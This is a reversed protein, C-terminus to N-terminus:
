AVDGPSILELPSRQIEDALARLRVAEAGADTGSRAEEVEFELTASAVRREALDATAALVWAGGAARRECRIRLQDGPRVFHRFSARGLRTLRGVQAFDSTLGILLQAAQAFAEVILAGPLIPRGPFHDAFVDETASVNRLTEISLGPEVAIIRDVFIFRM